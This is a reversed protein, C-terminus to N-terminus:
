SWEDDGVVDFDDGGGGKYEVLDVVQIALLTPHLGYRTENISYNINVKSGNGILTDQPWPNKKADVIRIPENKTEGDFKYEKRKFTVFDGRDDDKNKIRKAVGADKFAQVGAEDLSVDISWEKTVGDYGAQPAGTVKAWHAVGSLIPM